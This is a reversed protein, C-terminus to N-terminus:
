KICTHLLPTSADTWQNRQSPLGLFCNKLFEAQGESRCYIFRYTISIRCSKPNSSQSSIAKFISKVLPPCKQTQPRTQTENNGSYLIKLDPSNRGNQAELESIRQLSLHEISARRKCEEDLKLTLQYRLEAMEQALDEAEEKAKVRVDRLQEKLQRVLLEYDDIQRSMEAIKNRVDADTARSISFKHFLPGLVNGYTSTDKKLKSSPQGDTKALWEHFQEEVDKVFATSRLDSMQLKEKLDKNEKRLREIVKYADQNQLELDQFLGNVRSNEQTREELLKKTEFLNQELNSADLKISEIECQYELAMSSISEELNEIRSASCRIAKEKDEIEQMLLSREFESIKIQEKLRGLEEDLNEMDALKIHCSCAQEGPYNRGSNSLSLQDQLYDIEQICNSLERELDTIRKKDEGRSESLTKVHFELRRILEFGQSKSDRLMEKEKTLEKFRERIESLDDADFSGDSGGSLGGSM